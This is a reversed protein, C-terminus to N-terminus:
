HLVLNHLRSASLVKLKEQRPYDAVIRYDPPLVKPAQPPLGSLRFAFVIVKHQETQQEVPVPPTFAYEVALEKVREDKRLLEDFKAPEQSNYNLDAKNESDIM